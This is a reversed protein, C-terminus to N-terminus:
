VLLGGTALLNQGTLWRSDPGALFGVVDAVDAPQGLRGLATMGVMAAEADPPNHQRFMETDTSGPSVTNVTIGRAGYERAAVKVLQELAGKSAAYLSIGPGPVATNLTSIAIIRGGNSLSRGARQIAFYPGKVNTAFLEDYDTEDVDAILKVSARAANCVFIDLAGTSEAAREFLDDIAALDSQDAQVATAAGGAAKVEAVVDAAAAENSAYSFTVVAGDAALRRVIAAGIGRSGGTVLATKGDLAGM